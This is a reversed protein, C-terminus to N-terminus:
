EGLWVMAPARAVPNLIVIDGPVARPRHCRFGAAITGLLWTPKDSIELGGLLCLGTSTKFNLLIASPCVPFANEYIHNREKVRPHKSYKDLAFIRTKEKAQSSVM